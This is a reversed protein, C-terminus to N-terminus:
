IALALNIADIGRGGDRQYYAKRRGIEKFGLKGYLASAAANDEAVELFLKCIEARRLARVLGEVLATGIGSCQRDPLVGISLVEAEDAAIHSIVFGAVERKPGAVAVFATAAPHELLDLVAQEGWAPSFLVGHMAAIERAREPGAWLLSVHGAKPSTTM